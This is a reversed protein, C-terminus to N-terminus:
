ADGGGCAVANQVAVQLRVVQAKVGAADYLHSLLPTEKKGDRPM